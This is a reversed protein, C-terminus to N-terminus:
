GRMGYFVQMLLHFRRIFECASEAVLDVSRSDVPEVGPVLRAALGAEARHFEIRARIPLEPRYVRCDGQLARAVARAAAARIRARCAELPELLASQYGYGLKTEVFEVEPLVAAIEDRLAREGTVLGVPVNFAGAQVANILTEGASIRNLWVERVAEVSYTHTLVGGAAPPGPHYGIFLALGFSEDLGQLMDVVPTWGAILRAAPHLRDPLINIASGHADRVVVETAGGELAGTVASNVDETMWLRAHGYDPSQSGTQKSSTIGCIGEMDASIFVKM